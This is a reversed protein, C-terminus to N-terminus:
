HSRRATLAEFLEEMKKANNSWDEEEEIIKGNIAYFKERINPNDICFNVASAIEKPDDPNVFFANEKDKLYQKYVSLNSLIPISGCAMGEMISGAFQDTKPLSIFANSANLFVAMEEPSVLKSIIRINNIIGMDKAKSTIKEEYEPTGYGRIFLFATNPHESLVKPISNIISEIMYNEKLTRNSLIVPMEPELGLSRKLIAVDSTYGRHFIELDIGWPIRMVKEPSLGFANIIYDRTEIATTTVVDAARLCFLVAQRRVSSERDLRLVDSGWASAVFPHIGSLSGLVGFTSVYHANLLDIQTKRALWRIQLIGLVLNLPPSIIPIYSIHKLKHLNIGKPPPHIFSNFSLLHVEHGRRAFFEAWRVTHISAADSLLMIKMLLCGKYRIQM